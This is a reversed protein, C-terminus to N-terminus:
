GVVARLAEAAIWVVALAALHLYEGAPRPLTSGALSMALLLAAFSLVPLSPYTVIVFAVLTVERWRTWAGRLPLLFTLAVAAELVLTLLSLPRAAREVAPAVELTVPAVEALPDARMAGMARRNDRPLDEDQWQLVIPVRTLNRDISLLYALFSGDAFDPALLKWVTAFLFLWGIMLRGARGLTWAPDRALCAVTLALLWYLHLFHHNDLDVLPHSLVGPATVALLVAWARWDRGVWPLLVALLGAVVQSLLFAGRPPSFVAAGLTLLAVVGWRDLYGAVMWERVGRWGRTTGAGTGVAGDGTQVGASM